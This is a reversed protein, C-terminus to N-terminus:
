SARGALLIPISDVIPYRSGCGNCRVFEADLTLSQRCVPCALWRLAEPTLAPM